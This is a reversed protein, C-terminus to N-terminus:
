TRKGRHVKRSNRTLQRDVLVMWFIVMAMFLLVGAGTLISEKDLPRERAPGLYPSDITYQYASAKMIDVTLQYRGAPYHDFMGM